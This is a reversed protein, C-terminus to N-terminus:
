AAVMRRRITMRREHLDAALLYLWATLPGIVILITAFITTRATM